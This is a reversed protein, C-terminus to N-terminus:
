TIVIFANNRSCWFKQRLTKITIKKVAKESDLDNNSGIVGNFADLVSSRPEGKAAYKTLYEVCAHHDIIVQIDCNARWGQLQTKQHNNLRPDNRKTIVKM